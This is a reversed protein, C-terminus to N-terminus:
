RGSPEGPATRRPRSSCLERLWVMKVKPPPVLSIWRSMMAMTPRPIGRAGRQGAPQPDVGHEFRLNARSGSSSLPTEAHDRDAQSGSCCDHHGYVVGSSYTVPSSPATRQCPFNRAPACSWLTILSPVYAGGSSRSHVIVLDDGLDAAQGVLLLAELLHVDALAEGWVLLLPELGDLHGQIAQPVKKALPPGEAAGPPAGVISGESRLAGDFPVPLLARGVGGPPGGGLQGPCSRTGAGSGTASWSPRAVAQAAVPLSVHIQSFDISGGLRPTAYAVTTAVLQLEVAAHPRGTYAVMELPVSTTHTHGDLTVDIPTVQNGLVLGTSEDVLQAFVRTPRVGSPATGDYTLRLQPAGVVVQPRNGFSVTVNVANTAEAPTIPGM